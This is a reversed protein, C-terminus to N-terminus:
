NSYFINFLYLPPTFPWQYHHSFFRQAPACNLSVMPASLPWINCEFQKGCTQFFLYGISQEGEDKWVSNGEQMFWWCLDARHIVLCIDWAKLAQEVEFIGWIDCPSMRKFVRCYGRRHRVSLLANIVHLNPLLMLGTSWISNWYLLDLLGHSSANFCACNGSFRTIKENKFGTQVMSTVRCHHTYICINKHFHWISCRSLAVSGGVNWLATLSFPDRVRWRCTLSEHGNTELQINLIIKVQVIFLLAPLPTQRM